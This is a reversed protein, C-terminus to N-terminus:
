LETGPGSDMFRGRLHDLRAKAKGWAGAVAGSLGGKESGEEGRGLSGKKMWWSRRHRGTGVGAAPALPLIGSRSKADWELAICVAAVLLAVAIFLSALRGLYPLTKSRGSGAALCQEDVQGGEGESFV